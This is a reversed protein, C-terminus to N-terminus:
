KNINAIEWYGGKASGVHNIFESKKIIRAISRRPKKTHKAMEDLSIRPNLKILQILEKEILYFNETGNAAENKTGNETGNAIENNTGNETGNQTVTKTGNRFGSIKLYEVVEKDFSINTTKNNGDKKFTKARHEEEIKLTLNNAKEYLEFNRFLEMLKINRLVGEFKYIRAKAKSTVLRYPAIIELRNSLLYVIQPNYRKRSRHTSFSSTNKCANEKRYLKVKKRYPVRLAKKLKKVKMM